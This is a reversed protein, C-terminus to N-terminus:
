VSESPSVLIIVTWLKGNLNNNFFMTNANTKNLWDCVCVCFSFFFTYWVLYQACNLLWSVPIWNGKHMRQKEYTYYYDYSFSKLNQNQLMSKFNSKMICVNKRMKGLQSCNVVPMMSRVRSLTIIYLELIHCSYNQITKSLAFILRKTCVQSHPAKSPLMNFFLSHELLKTAMFFVRKYSNFESKSIIISSIDGDVDGWSRWLMFSESVNNVVNSPSFNTNM